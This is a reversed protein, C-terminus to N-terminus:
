IILSVQNHSIEIKRDPDEQGKFIYDQGNAFNVTVICKKVMSLCHALALMEHTDWLSYDPELTPNPGRVYRLNRRGKNYHACISSNIDDMEKFREGGKRIPLDFGGEAKKCKEMQRLTEYNANAFEIVESSSITNHPCDVVIKM